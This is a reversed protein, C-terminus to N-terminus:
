EPKGHSIRHDLRLIAPKWTTTEGSAPIDVHVAFSYHNNSFPFHLIFSVEICAADTLGRRWQMSTAAEPGISNANGYTEVNQM